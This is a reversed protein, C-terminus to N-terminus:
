QPLLLELAQEPTMPSWENVMSYTETLSGWYWSGIQQIVRPLAEPWTYLFHRKEWLFEGEDSSLRHKISTGYIYIDSFVYEFTDGRGM